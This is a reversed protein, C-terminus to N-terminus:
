VSQRGRNDLEIKGCLDTRDLSGPQDAAPNKHSFTGGLQASHQKIIFGSIAATRHFDIPKPRFNQGRSQPGPTM